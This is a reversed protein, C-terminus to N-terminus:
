NKNLEKLMSTSKAIIKDQGKTVRITWDSIDKKYQSHLIIGPLWFFISAVLFFLGFFIALPQSSLLSMISIGLLIIGLPAGFMILWLVENFSREKTFRYDHDKFFFDGRVYKNEKKTKNLSNELEYINKGFFLDLSKLVLDITSKKHFHHDKQLPLFYVDFVSKQFHELLLSQGTDNTISIIELGNPVSENTWHTQIINLILEKDASQYDSYEGEEDKYTKLRYQYKM